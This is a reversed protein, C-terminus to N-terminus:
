KAVMFKKTVVDDGSKVNVFYIGNSLGEVNIVAANSGSNANVTSSEIIAGMANMLSVEVEQNNKLEYSVNVMNSAPNPYVQVGMDKTAIEESGTYDSVNEAWAAQLVEQNGLRQIWVAVKLDTLEEISHESAHNIRNATQGDSPLRYSGPFTHSLSRKINAGKTIPTTIIEGQENPLMKKMVDIFETEGNSKVNEFTTGEIIATFLRYLSPDYDLYSNVDIEINVTQTAKIVEYTADITMFAPVSRYEQHLAATFNNANQDWGGDLEMRPISSVSYANRRNVAETTCYPDGTGPFNQQYKVAVYEGPYSAVIGHFNDNGPRCPGCTSSTFVEYLPLRQIVTDVVSVSTEVTDTYGLPDLAGNPNACWVKIDYNGDTPTWPITHTYPDTSNTGHAKGTINATVPAGGNISYSLDYSSLLASGINRLNGTITFPANATTLYRDLNVSLLRMSNTPQSGPVFETYSNDARGPDNGTTGGNYNPSSPQQFVTNGDIQIGVTLAPRGACQSQGVICQIRQNVMYIRNTTEEFVISGYVWGSQTGASVASNFMIWHQRFPAEGFTKKVIADGQGITLGWYCISSDPINASPLASPTSSPNYAGLVLPDTIFSVVGSPHVAYSSVLGGNFEFPFPITQASTWSTAPGTVITTWQDGPTTPLGGGIPYEADQMNINRPNGVANDNPIMFYQSFGFTSIAAFLVSTFLKKM